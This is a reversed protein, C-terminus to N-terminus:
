FDGAYQDNERGLQKAIWLHDKIKLVNFATWEWFDKDEEIWRSQRQAHIQGRRDTDLVHMLCDCRTRDKGCKRCPKLRKV